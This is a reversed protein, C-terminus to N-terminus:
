SQGHRASFSLHERCFAPLRMSEALAQTKLSAARSAPRWASQGDVEAREGAGGGGGRLDVLLAGLLEHLDVDAVVVVSGGRWGGGCAPARAGAGPPGAAKCGVHTPLGGAPWM